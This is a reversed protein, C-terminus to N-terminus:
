PTTIGHIPNMIEVSKSFDEKLASEPREPAGRDVKEFLQTCKCIYTGIILAIIQCVSLVIWFNNGDVKQDRGFVGPFNSNLINIILGVLSVFYLIFRLKNGLKVSSPQEQVIMILLLLCVAASLLVTIHGHTVVSVAGLIGKFFRERGVFFVGFWIDQKKTMSADQYTSVFIGTSCYFLLALMAMCTRIDSSDLLVTQWLRSIISLFMAGPMITFMFPGLFHNTKLEYHIFYGIIIGYVLVRDCLFFKYTSFVYAISILVFYQSLLALSAYAVYIYIIIIICSVPCVM